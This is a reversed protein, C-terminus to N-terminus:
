KRRRSSRGVPGSYGPRCANIDDLHDVADRLTAQEEAPLDRVDLSFCAAIEDDSLGSLDKFVTGEPVDFDETM